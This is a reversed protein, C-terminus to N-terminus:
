AFSHKHSYAGANWDVCGRWPWYFLLPTATPCDFLSGGDSVRQEASKSVGICVCACTIQSQQCKLVICVISNLLSITKRSYNVIQVSSQLGQLTLPSLYPHQFVTALIQNLKSASSVWYFIQRFGKQRLTYICTCSTHTGKNRHRHNPTQATTSQHLLSSVKRDPWCIQSDRGNGQQASAGWGAGSAGESSCEICVHWGSHLEWWGTEGAALVGVFMCATTFYQM